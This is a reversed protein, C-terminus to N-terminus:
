KQNEKFIDKAKIALLGCTAIGMGFQVLFNNILLYPLYLVPRFTLIYFDRNIMGRFQYNDKNIQKCFTKFLPVFVLPFTVGMISSIIFLWLPSRLFMILGVSIVYLACYILVLLYPKGKGYIYKSFINALIKGVEVLAMVIVVKNFSLNNIFLFLPLIVDLTSQYVGFCFHLLNYKKYLSKDIEFPKHTIEAYSEKILKYGFLIPVISLCYIVAGTISLVVLNNLSDGLLFGSILIFALKGVNAAIEFKAVNTNKDTFAFLLNVPVSYLVQNLANLVALLVVVYWVMPCFALVFQIAIIPAISLFIAIVGKRQLFRRLVINLVGSLFYHLCLFLIVLYMNNCARYIILPIFVKVISDGVAKLLKHLFLFNTKDKILSQKELTQEM